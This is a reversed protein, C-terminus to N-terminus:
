QCDLLTRAFHPSGRARLSRIQSTRNTNVLDVLFKTFACFATSLREGAAAHRQYFVALHPLKAQCGRLRDVQMPQRLPLRVFAPRLLRYVPKTKELLFGHGDALHDSQVRVDLAVDVLREAIGRMVQHIARWHASSRRRRRPSVHIHALADAGAEVAGVNAFSRALQRHAPRSSSATSRSIKSTQARTQSAQAASHSRCSWSCQLSQASIHRSHASSQRM